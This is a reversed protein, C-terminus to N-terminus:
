LGIMRATESQFNSPELDRLLESDFWFKRGGSFTVPESRKKIRRTLTAYYRKLEVPVKFLEKEVEGYESYHVLSSRYTKPHGDNRSRAFFSLILHAGGRGQAIYEIPGKHNNVTSKIILPRNTFTKHTVFVLGNGKRSTFWAPDTVPEIAPYSLTDPTRIECGDELICSVLDAMGAEHTVFEFEAM